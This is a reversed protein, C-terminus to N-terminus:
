IMEMEGNGMRVEATDHGTKKNNKYVYVCICLHICVYVYM